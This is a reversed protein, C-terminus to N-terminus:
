VSPHYLSDKVPDHHPDPFNFGLPSSDLRSRAKALDLHCNEGLTWSERDEGHGRSQNKKKGILM